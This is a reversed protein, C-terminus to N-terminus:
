KNMADYLGEHYGEGYTKIMLQDLKEVAFKIGKKNEIVLTSRLIDEIEKKIFGEEKIYGDIEVEIKM